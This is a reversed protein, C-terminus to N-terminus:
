IWLKMLRNLDQEPVKNQLYEPVKPPNKPKPFNVNPFITMSSNKMEWTFYSAASIGLEGLKMGIGFCLCLIVGKSANEGIKKWKGENQNIKRGYM